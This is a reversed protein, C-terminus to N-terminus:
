SDPLVICYGALNALIGPEATMYYFAINWNALKGPEATTYFLVVEWNALKGPEATMYDLVIDWRTQWNGQNLQRTICHLIGTRRDGQNLQRTFCHLIGSLEGTERTRSDLLVICYGVANALIGPEGILTGYLNCICYGSPTGPEGLM